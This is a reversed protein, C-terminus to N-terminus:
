FELWHEAKWDSKRDFGVTVVKLQPARRKLRAPIGWQPHLHGHGVLAVIPQNPRDQKLNLIRWAMYEDWFCQILFYRDVLDPKVDVGEPMHQAVVTAMFSRYDQPGLYFEGLWRITEVIGEKKFTETRELSPRLHVLELQHGKIWRWIPQYLEYPHGWQEKWFDIGFDRFDSTQIFRALEEEGDERFMEAAVIPKVSNSSLLKLAELQGAHDLSSGHNEGLLIVDAGTWEQGIAISWSFATLLAAFVVVKM